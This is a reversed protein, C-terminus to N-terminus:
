KQYEDFFRENLEFAKRPELGLELDEFLQVLKEGDVLEIPPVGDRLAERRADASFTGTTLVIGKDARGQMAGRFDRVHGPGVSGEYRKCQFLVRFSVFANLALVGNGDIGGDGSRGTVAVQEFGAERLLRQCLREFGSPPLTKLLALLREAHGGTDDVPAAEEKVPTPAPQDQQVAPQKAAPAVSQPGRGLRSDEQVKLVLEDIERETLPGSMQASETLKWVGRRSRDIYGAEALYYRAWHVQNGFRSTGGTITQDLVADPVSCRKAVLDVVEKPRASGGLERLAALLPNIWGTFELQAM